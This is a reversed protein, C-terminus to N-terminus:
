QSDESSDSSNVIIPGNNLQENDQSVLVVDSDQTNMDDNVDDESIDEHDNTDDMKRKDTRAYIFPSLKKNYFINYSGIIAATSLRRAINKLRRKDHFVSNLEKITDDPIIGLSSVIIVHLSVRANWKRRIEEALPEYKSIKTRRRESLKSIREGDREQYGGYPCNVEILEIELEGNEKEIGYWIDPKLNLSEPSLQEKNMWRITSNEHIPPANRGYKRRINDNIIKCLNDHRETFKNLSAKCGNLRHMLSDNENSNCVECRTTHNNGNKALLENTPLNNCRANIMFKIVCDPVVPSNVGFYDNSVASSKSDFFTHGKFTLNRLSEYHRNKFLNNMTKLFNRSNTSEKEDDKLKDYIAIVMENEDEESKELKVCINLRETGHLARVFLTNTKHTRENKVNQYNLLGEILEEDNRLNRKKCEELMNTEVVNKVDEDKSLIMNLYTRIQLAQSREKFEPINLGGDKWHTYFYDKPIGKGGLSKCIRGRIFKDLEEIKKVPCLGNLLLYDLKPCILRKLADICQSLALQSNFLRQIEVKINSILHNTERMKAYRNTAIPAGLYLMADDINEATLNTGNINLREEASVRRRDILMYSLWHCKEATIKMGTAECFKECTRIMKKMGVISNSILIVDDAFAQICYSKDNVFYGNENNEKRILKLLPDLCINFLLPSLPCGQRVGKEIHIEKSLQGKVLFSTTNNNYLNKILGCFDEPFGISTLAKYILKHSVSGFADAFDITVIHIEQNNRTANSILENVTAVHEATGNVSFKFGKQDKSIFQKVNNMIQFCKAVHSMIVRYLSATLAIPRWAEVKKPDGRKYLMVTKSVKWIEPMRKHKLASKLVRKILSITRKPSVKWIAYSLGDRGSASMNSKNYISEKIMKDDYLLDKFIRQDNEDFIQDYKLIENELNINNRQNWQKEFHEAFENSDINNEPSVESNIFWQVCRRPDERYMSRITSTYSKSKMKECEKIERDIYTKLWELKRKQRDKDESIFNRINELTRDPCINRTIGVPLTKITNILNQEINAIANRIRVRDRKENMIILIELMEVLEQANFIKHVRETFKNRESESYVKKNNLKRRMRLSRDKPIKLIERMKKRIMMNIKCLVGETITWEEEDEKHGKIWKILEKIKTKFLHELPGQLKRRMNLNLRPFTINLEEEERCKNIWSIAKRLRQDVDYDSEDESENEEETVNVPDRSNMINEENENDEIRSEVSDNNIESEPETTQLNDVEELRPNDSEESIGSVTSEIEDEANQDVPIIKIPTSRPKRIGERRIEKHVNLHAKYGNNMNTIFSECKPCLEGDLKKFYDSAKWFRDEDAWHCLSGWFIGLKKIRNKLEKHVDLHSHYGTRTGTFKDCGIETCRHIAANEIINGNGKKCIYRIDRGIISSLLDNIWGEKWEAEHEKRLHEEVKKYTNAGYKLCKYCIFKNPAPWKQNLVINNIIPNHLEDPNETWQERRILRRKWRNILNNIDDLNQAAKLERLIDIPGATEMNDYGEDESSPPTSSSSSSSSTSTSDENRNYEQTISDNEHSMSVSSTSPYSSTETSSKNTSDDSNSNGDSSSTYKKVDETKRKRNKIITPANVDKQKNKTEKYTFKPIQIPVEIQEIKLKFQPISLEMPTYKPYMQPINIPSMIPQPILTPYKFPLEEPTSKFTPYNVPIETKKPDFNFEPYNINVKNPNATFTPYNINTECTNVRLNPIEIPVEVKNNVISPINISIEEQKTNFNPYSIQVEKPCPNFEPYSMNVGQPIPNMEPYPINITQPIPNLNPYSIDIDKPIPKLSPYEVNIEQSTANIEPYSIQVQTPVPCFQPYILPTEKQVPNLVPIEYDLVRKIPNLLPVPWEVDKLKMKPIDMDYEKFKVNIMPMNVNYNNTIIQPIQYITQTQMKIDINQLKYGINLNSNLNIMIKLLMKLFENKKTDEMTIDSLYLPGQCPAPGQVTPILSESNFLRLDGKYEKIDKVDNSLMLENDKIMVQGNATILGGDEFLIPTKDYLSTDATIGVWPPVKNVDGRPNKNDTDECNYHIGKKLFLISDTKLENTIMRMTPLKNLKCLLFMFSQFFCGSRLKAGIEDNNNAHQAMHNFIEVTSSAVSQCNKLDCLIPTDFTVNDWDTDMERVQKMADQNVNEFIEPLSINEIIENQPNFVPFPIQHRHSNKIHALLPEVNVFNHCCLPYLPCIIRDGEFICYSPLESIIERNLATVQNFENISNISTIKPFPDSSPRIDQAHNAQETEITPDRQLLGGDSINPIDFFKGPTESFNADNSQVGEASSSYRTEPGCFM